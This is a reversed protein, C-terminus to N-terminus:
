PRDSADIQLAQSLFDPVEDSAKTKRSELDQLWTTREHKPIGIWLEMVIIGVSWIDVKETYHPQRVEPALYIETGCITFHDAAKTALGFDALKIHIPRRAMVLINGPKVDRHVINRAHLYELGKLTQLVM